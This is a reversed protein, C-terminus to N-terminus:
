CSAGLEPLQNSPGLIEQELLHAIEVAALEGPLSALGHNAIYLNSIEPFRFGEKTKLSHSGYANPHVFIKEGALDAQGDAGAFATPWGRKLQRKIHRICQGVYEHDAERDGPVLTMWKSFEGWCRGVVPEFDKASHTFIRVATDDALAPSHNLELTVATWNQMKALRTRHKAPFEVSAILQNVAPPNGTFIVNQVAIVKEGNVIVETLQGDALTFGTVESRVHAEFPLQEILARTLQDFGPELELCHSHNYLTTLESVSQFSSEGFGSFPRWRGDEFMQPRHEQPSFHLPIPAVRALWELAAQCENLMPIFDLGASAYPRAPNARRYRGGLFERAELLTVNLGHSHLRHALLLATLGGGVILYQPLAENTKTDSSKSSANSDMHWYTVM